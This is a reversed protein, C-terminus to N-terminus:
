EVMLEASTSSTGKYSKSTDVTKTRLYTAANATDAAEYGAVLLALKSTISSSSYGKILFQGSGVGTAETFKAGCHAGGILAAAASNICSGGVVILNKSSVSSVESDKVIVNGLGSTTSVAGAEAIQVDAYMQENPYTIEVVRQDSDSDDVLVYSGFNTLYGKYDNDKWSEEDYGTSSDHGAFITKNVEMNTGDDSTTIIIANKTDATTETNDEEEIFLVGPNTDVTGGSGTQEVEIAFSLEGITTTDDVVYYVAGKQIVEATDDVADSINIAAGVIGTASVTIDGTPLEITNSANIGTITINDTIAVKHDRGSVLEIYPYVFKKTAFDNSYVMVSTTGITEITYEQNSIIRTTSNTVKGLDKDSVKYTTGTFLDKFEVDDNAQSDDSIFIKTMKMFHQYNGSNLIFYDDQTITAGEYIHITKGNDDGLGGNFGLPVTEINGSSDKINLQLERDGGSVVSLMDRDDSVDNEGDFEPGNVVEAFNLVLTGFVPDVFSDGVLVHNADNDEAAIAIELSSLSSVPDMTVLTGDIDEEDSGAKVANGNELILRDSGLEIEVYGANDGTKFITKAYVDIESMEKTDDEDFTKTEGDVTISARITAGESLGNLTVDYSKDNVILTKTEGVDIRSSDSGGLLVLKTGDTQTGVTYSKGFLNLEEGESESTNLAVTDIFTLKWTYIPNSRNTTLDLMLMPDEFDNDSDSFAFNNDINQEISITQEYDYDTGGDDTFTGDALVDPLDDETLTQINEGLDDNLYLLDSGSKLIKSAGDGSVSISPGIEDGLDTQINQAQTMDLTSVGTGTGYVIAVNATNGEVFPAPYNAAAAVGMTMGMMLASTAVASIKKFNFKM